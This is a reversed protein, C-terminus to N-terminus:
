WRSFVHETITISKLREIEEWSLKGHAWKKGLRKVDDLLFSENIYRVYALSAKL